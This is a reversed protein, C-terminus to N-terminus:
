HCMLFWSKKFVNYYCYKFCKHFVIKLCIKSTQALHLKCINRLDMCIQLWSYKHWFMYFITEKVCKQTFYNLWLNTKKWNGIKSVIQGLRSWLGCYGKCSGVSPEGCSCKSPEKRTGGRCRFLAYFRGWCVSKLPQFLILPVITCTCQVSNHIFHKNSASKFKNKSFQKM